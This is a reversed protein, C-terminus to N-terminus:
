LGSEADIDTPSGTLPNSDRGNKSVPSAEISCVCTHNLEEKLNCTQTASPRHLLRRREYFKGNPAVSDRKSCGTSSQLNNSSGAIFSLRTKLGEPLLRVVETQVENNLFCYLLAVISGQFSSFLQDICLVYLEIIPDELMSMVFLVTYPVGFLPVLVLTSKFWKRYRVRRMEPTHSSSMKIFVVRTINLFFLFNLVISLTIPGRLIWHIWQHKTAAWCGFNDGIIRVLAWCFLFPLPLGWGMLVYKTIKSNDAYVSMFILNHLYLGEMLIWCYNAMLTYHFLSMYLKCDISM